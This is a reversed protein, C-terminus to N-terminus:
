RRGTRLASSASSSVYPRRARLCRASSSSRPSRTSANRPSGGSSFSESPFLVAVFIAVLLAFPMRNIRQYITPKTVVVPAMASLGMLQTLGDGGEGCEKNTASLCYYGDSLEGTGWRHQPCVMKMCRRCADLNETEECYYCHAEMKQDMSTERTSVFTETEM